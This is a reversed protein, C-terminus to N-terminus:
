GVSRPLFSICDLRLKLTHVFLIAINAQNTCKIVMVSIHLTGACRSYTGSAQRALVAEYEVERSRQLDVERM